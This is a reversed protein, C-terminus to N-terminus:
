GEIIYVIQHTRPRLIVWKGRVRIFEYGSWEPYIEIIRPPLPYVRITSPIATGISLNFNVNTVEDVKESRIASVIQTRKEPPPAATASTAANGTTQSQNSQGTPAQTTTQSKNDAPAKSDAKVDKSAAGRDQTESTMSKPKEGKINDQASKEGKTGPKLDDQTSLNKAGKPQLKEDTQTSKVGKDSGKSDPASDRSAPAASPAVREAPASQQVASGASPAERGPGQAGALGTGALLAATAVSIMLRNTM